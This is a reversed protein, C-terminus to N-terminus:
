RSILRVRRKGWVKPIEAADGDDRVDAYLVIETPTDRADIWWRFHCYVEVFSEFDDYM